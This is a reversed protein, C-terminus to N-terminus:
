MKWNPFFLVLIRTAKIARRTLQSREIGSFRRALTRKKLTGIFQQERM